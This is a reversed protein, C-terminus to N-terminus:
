SGLEPSARKALADLSVTSQVTGKGFSREGIVIGRGYDQIAAAFIESASASNRNILVGVPGTWAVSVSTNSHVVLKGDSHREQVVPGKGTFLGTLNVAETMSGGGNDRLDILIGEAGEAKLETLLHAVDNSVSKISAEGRQQAEFDRYFSPLTIVGIRRNANGDSVTLMTKKAAEDDLDIKKRVLSVRRHPGDQPAKAPLVDLVVTSDVAGRILAM